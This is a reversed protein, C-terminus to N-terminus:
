NDHWVSTDGDGVAHENGSCVKYYADLAVKLREQLRAYGKRTTIIHGM